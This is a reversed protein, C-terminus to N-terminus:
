LYTIAVHVNYVTCQIHILQLLVHVNKSTDFLSQNRDTIVTFLVASVNEFSTVKQEFTNSRLKRNIHKSSCIRGM